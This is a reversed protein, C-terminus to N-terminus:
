EAPRHVFQRRPRDAAWTFLSLPGPRGSVAPAALGLAWQRLRAREEHPLKRPPRAVTLHPLAPRADGLADAAQLLVGRWNEMLPRLPDGDDDPMLALASFRREDPLLRWRTFDVPAGAPPVARMAHLVAEVREPRAPGFFALTVHLDAPHFWRWGPPAERALGPLWDEPELRLPWGAFWNGRLEM